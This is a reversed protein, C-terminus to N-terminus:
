HRSFHKKILAHQQHETMKDAPIVDIKVKEFSHDSRLLNFLELKADTPGFLLVESYNKIIEGLKKFYESDQQQERTHMLFEGRDYTDVSGAKALRASLITTTSPETSFETLHASSHDM